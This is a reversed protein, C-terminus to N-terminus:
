GKLVLGHFHCSLVPACGWECSYRTLAHVCVNWQRSRCARTQWEHFHVLACVQGGCTHFWGRGGQCGEFCFLKPFKAM